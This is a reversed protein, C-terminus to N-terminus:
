PLAETTGETTPPQYEDPYLSELDEATLWDMEVCTHVGLCNTQDKRNKDALRRSMALNILNEWGQPTDVFTRAALLTVLQHCGHCLAILFENEPDNDKGLLHHSALRDKREMCLQCVGEALGITNRRKGGYYAKDSRVNVGCRRSCVQQKKTLPYFTRGCNPCEKATLDSRRRTYADWFAGDVRQVAGVFMELELNHERCFQRLSGKYPELQNILKQVAPKPYGRMAKRRQCNGYRSGLGLQSIKGAVGAYPRGLRTAIEGITCQGALEKLTDIEDASWNRAPMPYGLARLRDWVSQGCMGLRKAAGWVSGTDRYATIVQENTAKIFPGTGKPNL